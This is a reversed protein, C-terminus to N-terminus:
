PGPRDLMSLEAATQRLQIFDTTLAPLFAGAGLGHLLAAQRPDIPSLALFADRIRIRLEDPLDPRVAWVNDAFPPTRLLVRVDRHNLRGDAFMADIIAANAVGVDAEGDRVWYGTTDHSGSYRVESFWDEPHMGNREMFHRPMLHGSTSLRSGFALRAGKIDALSQAPNDARVLFASRFELDSDRMVLPVAGAQAEAQVFTLGGIYAMAIDGEDFMKVLGAYDGPIVLECPLGVRQSLYQLLPDFRTRLINPAQDPLIGIRLREPPTSPSVLGVLPALLGAAAITAGILLGARLMRGPNM